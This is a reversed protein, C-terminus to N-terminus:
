PAAEIFTAIGVGKYRGQRRAEAQATRFASYDMLEVARDLTQRASMRELTPGTVMPRPQEEATVMNRRRIEIPDIQLARAIMDLLRERVWTEVEWPGRYAVYPAKNSAVVQTDFQLAELRYPGPIMVRMISTFLASPFPLLPYSGQNMVL